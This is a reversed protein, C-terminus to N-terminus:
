ISAISGLKNPNSCLRSSQELSVSATLNTPNLWVEASVEPSAGLTSNPRRVKSSSHCVSSLDHGKAVPNCCVEAPVGADATEISSFVETHENGYAQAARPPNAM